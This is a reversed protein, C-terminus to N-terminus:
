KEPIELLFLASINAANCIYPQRHTGSKLQRRGAKVFYTGGCEPCILSNM